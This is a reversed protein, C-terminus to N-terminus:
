GWRLRTSKCVSLSRWAVTTLVIVVAINIIWWRRNDKVGYLLAFTKVKQTAEKILDIRTNLKRLEHHSGSSNTFIEVGDLGMGIHPSFLHNGVNWVSMLFLSPCTGLLKPTSCHFVDRFWSFFFFALLRSCFVQKSHFTRRMDWHWHVYGGYCNHCRWIASHATHSAFAFRLILFSVGFILRFIFIGSQNNETDDKALLLGRGCGEEDM